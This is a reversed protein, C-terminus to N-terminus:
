KKVSFVYNGQVRHGDVTVATWKVHYRGTAIRPLTVTMAKSNAPDVASKAATLSRGEDDIVAITSFAAELAENFEIRVENPAEMLIANEAPISKQLSAHAWSSIGLTTLSTAVVSTLFLRLNFFKM